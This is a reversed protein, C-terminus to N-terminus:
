YNQNKNNDRWKKGRTKEDNLESDSKQRRKEVVKGGGKEEWMGGM